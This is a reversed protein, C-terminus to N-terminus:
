NPSTSILVFMVWLHLLGVYMLVFIRMLPYRRLFAGLRIGASDLSSYVRKVRRAVRNDFPNERMLLPFQTKVVCIFLTYSLFNLLYYFTIYIYTHNCTSVIM